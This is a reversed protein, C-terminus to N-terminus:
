PTRKLTLEAMPGELRFLNAPSGPSTDRVNGNSAVAIEAEDNPTQNIFAASAVPDFEYLVGGLFPSASKRGEYANSNNRWTAGRAIPEGQANRVAAGPKRLYLRVVGPETMPKAGGPADRFFAVIAGDKVALYCEFGSEIAPDASSCTDLRGVLVPAGNEPTLRIWNEAFATARYGAGEAAAQFAVESLVASLRDRWEGAGSGIAARAANQAPDIYQPADAALVRDLYTNLALALEQERPTLPSTGPGITAATVAAVALGLLAAARGASVSAAAAGDACDPAQTRPRAGTQPGLDLVARKLAQHEMFNLFGCRLDSALALSLTEYAGPAPAAHVAAPIALAAFIMGMARRIRM